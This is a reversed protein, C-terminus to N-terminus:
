IYNTLSLKSLNATLSFTAELQTKLVDIRLTSEYPDAEELKIIQKSVLTKEVELRSQNTTIREEDLGLVSQTEIMGQEGANLFGWARESVRKYAEESVSDAPVSALLYLGKLTDRFSQDGATAGYTVTVSGDIRAVVPDTSGNFFVDGFQSDFLTALAGDVMADVDAASTLPAAGVVAQVAAMPSTGSGGVEDPGQVPQRDFQTGGFLFRGSMASNLMNTVSRLADKAADDITATTTENAGGSATLALDRVPRASDRISDMADQMMKMRAAQGSMATQFHEIENYVNRLDLLQATGSGLSGAVDIKRGSSLEQQLTQMENQIQRVSNRTLRAMSLTSVSGLSM